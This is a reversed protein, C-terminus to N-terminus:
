VCRSDQIIHTVAANEKPNTFYKKVSSFQLAAKLILQDCYLSDTTIVDMLTFRHLHLALGRDAGALESYDQRSM